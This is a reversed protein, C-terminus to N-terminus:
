RLPAFTRLFNAFKELCKAFNTLINSRLFNALAPDAFDYTVMQSQVALLRAGITHPLTVRTAFTALTGLTVDASIGTVESPGARLFIPRRELTSFIILYNVM